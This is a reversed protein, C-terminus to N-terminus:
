EIPQCIRRDDARRCILGARALLADYRPDERIPDFLPDSALRRVHAKRDMESRLLAFAAEHDGVAAHLQALPEVFSGYAGDFPDDSAARETLRSVADRAAPSDGGSALRLAELGDLAPGPGLTARMTELEGAAGILDGGLMRALFRYRLVPFSSDGGALARDAERIATEWDRCLYAVRIVVSSRLTRAAPELRAYPEIVEQAETCRGLDALLASLDARSLAEWVGRTRLSLARRYRAAASEWDGLSWEATALSHWAAALTDDLEVAREAAELAQPLLERAPREGHTTLMMDAYAMLAWARAHGSDAEIARAAHVRVSDYPEGGQWAAWAKGYEIGADYPGTEPAAPTREAWM